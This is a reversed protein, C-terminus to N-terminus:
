QCTLDIPEGIQDAVDLLESAAITWGTEGARSAAFVMGIIRDKDDVIPAGSDGREIEAEIEIGQRRGEGDLTVSVRRLITVPAVFTGDLRHIVVRAEDLPDDADSRMELGQAAVPGFANQQFALVAIDRDRDLMVVEADVEVGGAGVLQVARTEEFSHAVTLALGDGISVATARNEVNPRCSNLSVRLVAAQLDIPDDAVCGALASLGFWAGLLTAAGASTRV